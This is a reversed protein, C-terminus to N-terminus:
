VFMQQSKCEDPRDPAAWAYTQILNAVASSQALGLTHFKSLCDDLAGSRGVWHTVFLTFVQDGL